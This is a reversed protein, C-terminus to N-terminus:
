MATLEKIEKEIDEYWDSNSGEWIRLPAEACNESMESQHFTSKEVVPLRDEDLMHYDAIAILTTPPRLPSPIRSRCFLHSEMEFIGYGHQRGVVKMVRCFNMPEEGGFMHIAVSTDRLCLFAGITLRSKRPPDESKGAPGPKDIFWACPRTSQRMYFPSVAEIVLYDSTNLGPHRGKLSAHLLGDWMEQVILSPFYASFSTSTTYNHLMLSSTDVPTPFWDDAPEASTATRPEGSVSEPVPEVSTTDPAPTPPRSCPQGPGKLNTITVPVVLMPSSPPPLTTPDGLSM